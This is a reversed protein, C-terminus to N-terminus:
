FIAIMKKKQCHRMTMEGDKTKEKEKRKSLLKKRRRKTTCRM